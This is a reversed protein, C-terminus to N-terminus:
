WLRDGTAALTLLLTIITSSTAATLQHHLIIDIQHVRTIIYNKLLENLTAPPQPIDHTGMAVRSTYYRTIHWPDVCAFNRTPLHPPFARFSALFGPPLRHSRMPGQPVGRSCEPGYRADRPVIHCPGLTCEAPQRSIGGHSGMAPWTLEQSGIPIAWIVLCFYVSLLKINDASLSQFKTRSRIGRPYAQSRRVIYM